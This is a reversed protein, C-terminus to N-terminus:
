GAGRRRCTPPQTAHHVSGRWVNSTRRRPRRVARTARRRRRDRGSWSGGVLRRRGAALTVAAAHSIEFWEDADDHDVEVAALEGDVAEVRQEGGVPRGVPEVDHEDVVAREVVHEIAEGGVVTVPRDADELGEGIQAEGSAAVEPHCQRTVVLVDSQDVVVCGNRRAPQARHNGHHLGRGVDTGDRGLHEEGLSVVADLEVYGIGRMEHRSLMPHQANPHRAHAEVAFADVVAEREVLSEMGGFRGHGGVGLLDGAPRARLSRKADRGVDISRRGGRRDRHPERAEFWAGDCQPRGRSSPLPSSVM